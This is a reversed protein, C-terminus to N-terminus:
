LSGISLGIRSPGTVPSGESLHETVMQDEGICEVVHNDYDEEKEVIKRYARCMRCVEVQLM